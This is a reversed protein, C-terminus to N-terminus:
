SLYIGDPKIEIKRERYLTGIGKKFAKKSLELERKIDEPDSKDHLGLFGGNEKLKQYIIVQEM